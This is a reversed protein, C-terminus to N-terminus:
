SSLKLVEQHGTVELRFIYRLRPSHEIEVIDGVKLEDFLEGNVDFKRVGESGAQLGGNAVVIQRRTDNTVGTVRWKSLVPGVTLRKPARLDRLKRLFNGGLFSSFLLAVIGLTPLVYREYLQPEGNPEFWTPLWMLLIFGAFGLLLLASICDAYLFTKFQWGPRYRIRSAGGEELPPAEGPPFDEAILVQLRRVYKFVPTYDVEVYDAQDTALFNQQDVQLRCTERFLYGKRRHNARLVLAYGAASNDAQEVRAVLAGKVRRTPILWDLLAVLSYTLVGLCSLAIVGVLWVAPAQWSQFLAQSDFRDQILNGNSLQVAYVHYTRPSHLVKLWAGPPIAEVVRPIVEFRRLLGAETRLEFSATGNRLQSTHRNVLRGETTVPASQSDAWFDYSFPIAMLLTLGLFIALAFGFIFHAIPHKKWM